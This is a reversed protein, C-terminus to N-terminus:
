PFGQLHFSYIGDESIIPLETTISKMREVAYQRPNTNQINLVDFSIFPGGADGSNDIILELTVNGDNFLLTDHVIFEYPLARSIRTGPEQVPVSQESPIM